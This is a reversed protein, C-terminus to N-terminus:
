VFDKMTKEEQELRRLEAVKNVEEDGRGFKEKLDEL